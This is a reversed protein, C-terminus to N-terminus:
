RQVFKRGWSELMLVAWLHQAYDRTGRQHQQWWRRIADVELWEAVFAERAFVRSEFVAKLDRRLWQALPISFGMKPRYLIERPVLDRLARKFIYKSEGNRLKYRAPIRAAHEMFLHDLIPVRVELSHAMSARDVKTLVDDVLYTKVDVYQIRSLPDWDRAREFHAQVVSFPDYGQLERRLGPKYSQAKMAPNFWSMTHFYGREPTLALNTLLTKARFVQPLWDAKPYIKGLAGFLPGRLTQPMFDRLRNELVDFRYRRYGAFNEDGGDGSLCVTVRERAIQAVYYAPVMSSDAFPEDFHWALTDLIKAAEAHVIKEHARTRYKQAIMRAYPLEDFAAESFGISATNVPEDLLNAMTGVVASSDIGGSLFAGLPVESMLQSSVSDRLAANLDHAIDAESKGNRPTFDLDWYEFEELGRASVLLGRGPRLKRINAFVTKPGPIYLYTLYDDLAQADLKRGVGPDQLIAKIESAFLFQAGDWYYHLPKVGVHDRALFLQHAREDWLAFAFMGRLRRLLERGWQEYGHLLVETDSNTKFHHGCSALERRLALHNYIEGNFIVVLSHDENYMPQLGAAVDIIKLRRHGLGAAGRIHFGEAEPGRHALAQAMRHITEAEVHKRPDLFIKGCIGCM